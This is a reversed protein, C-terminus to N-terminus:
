RGYKRDSKLLINVQPLVGPHTLGTIAVQVPTPCCGVVPRLSSRAVISDVRSERYPRIYWSPAAMDRAPWLIILGWTM